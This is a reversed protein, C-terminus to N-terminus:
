DSAPDSNPSCAVEDVVDTEVRFLRSPDKRRQATLVPDSLVDDVVSGSRKGVHVVPKAAVSVQLPVQEVGGHELARQGLTDRLAESHQSQATVRSHM